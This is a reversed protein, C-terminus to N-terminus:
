KEEVHGGHNSKLKKLRESFDEFNSKETEKPIKKFERMCNQKVQDRTHPIPSFVRQKLYGWLFFDRTNLGPYRPPRKKFNFFHDFILRKRHIEVRKARHPSTM